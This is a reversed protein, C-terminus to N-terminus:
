WGCWGCVVVKGAGAWVMRRFNVQRCCEGGHVRIQHLHAVALSLQRDVLRARVAVLVDHRHQRAVDVAGAVAVYAYLEVGEYVGLYPECVCACVCVCVRARLRWYQRAGDRRECACAWARLRWQVWDIAAARWGTGPM